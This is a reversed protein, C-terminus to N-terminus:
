PSCHYFCCFPFGFAYMINWAGAKLYTGLPDSRTPVPLPPTCARAAESAPPPRPHLTVCRPHPWDVEDAPLARTSSPGRHSRPTHWRRPGAPPTINLHHASSHLTHPSAIGSLASDHKNTCFHAYTVNFIAEPPGIVATRADGPMDSVYATRGDQSCSCCSLAWVGRRPSWAVLRTRRVPPGEPAFWLSTKLARTRALYARGRSRRRRAVLPLDSTDLLTSHAHTGSTYVLRDLRYM